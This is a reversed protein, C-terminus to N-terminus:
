LDVVLSHWDPMLKKNLQGEIADTTFLSKGIKDTSMALLTRLARPNLLLKAVECLIELKDTM